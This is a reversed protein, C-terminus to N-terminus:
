ALEWGFTGKLRRSIAEKTPRHNQGGYNEIAFSAMITGLEACRKLSLKRSNGYLFGARFADGCGTPDLVRTPNGVPIHIKEDHTYIYLGKSGLTEIIFKKKDNLLSNLSRKFKDQLLQSEYENVFLGCANDVMQEFPLISEADGELFSPLCQGPDLFYDINHKIAEKAMFASTLSSDPALHWLKLNYAEAPINPRRKMAGSMFSSIQNNSKDTLIWIHATDYDSHKTLTQYPIGHEEMHEEYKQFDRGISGCLLIKDKLLAANYAINGATGGFETKSERIGFAVNLHAVSEPLIRAHFHGDHMLITDYAFSGSLLYSM